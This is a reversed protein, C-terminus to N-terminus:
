NQPHSLVPVMPGDAGDIYIFDGVGIVDSLLGAEAGRLVICDFDRLKKLIDARL